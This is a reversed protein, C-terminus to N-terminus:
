DSESFRIIRANSIERYCRDMSACIQMGSLVFEPGRSRDHLVTGRSFDAAASTSRIQRESGEQRSRRM